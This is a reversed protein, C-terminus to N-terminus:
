REHYRNAARARNRHPLAVRWPDIILPSLKPFHTRRSVSPGPGKYDISRIAGRFGAARADSPDPRGGGTRGPARRAM